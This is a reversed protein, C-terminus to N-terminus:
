TSWEQRGATCTTTEGGEMNGNRRAVRPSGKEVNRGEKKNEDREKIKGV